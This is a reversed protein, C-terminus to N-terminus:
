EEMNADYVVKGRFITKMVKTSDIKLPCSDIINKDIVVFNADKGVEISGFETESFLQYAGNITYAKIMDMVSVREEPSLLWKPDDKDTIKEVGYFEPNELNRTVGVEIAWFPYPYPTVPHDSSSTVIVGENIFSQIPYEREARGGLFPSDIVEWWEPEKFAWYPQPCAIVNLEAFRQIDESAVLQLHTIVNRYDGEPVQSKAKEFGDLVLKTSGDGISHVHIQFGESNAAVFAEKMKEVDWQMQGLYDAEKGAAAEYPEALYGTVGEIVGDAFFKLTKFKINDTNYTARLAKAEELQAEIDGNPDMTMSANVHLTLEGNDELSKYGQLPVPDDGSISMIGTYGLSNMFNIFQRLAELKQQQTFEQPPVIEQASEKLTGWLEGNEDKEIVGGMPAKTDKTIGFQEFAKSNMWTVHGDYSKLIIPKDTSLADLRSKKPGKAAEEGSFAGISFGSGYYIQRDPNKKIYDGIIQITEEERLIGNLNICYLQTLQTGPAHLHSDIMGPLMMQGELDIVQTAKGKYDAAYAAAGVFIIKGNKVAVTDVISSEQDVTYVIGNTLIMDAANIPEENIPEEALDNRAEATEQASCGICIILFSFLMILFLMRKRNM